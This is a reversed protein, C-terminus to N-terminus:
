GLEVPEWSEYKRTPKLVDRSRLGCKLQFSPSSGVIGAAARSGGSESERGTGAAGELNTLALFM